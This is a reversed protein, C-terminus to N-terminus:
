PKERVPLRVGRPATVRTDNRWGPKSSRNGLTAKWARVMGYSLGVLQRGHPRGDNVWEVGSQAGADAENWRLCAEMLVIRAASESDLANSRAGLLDGSLWCGVLPVM